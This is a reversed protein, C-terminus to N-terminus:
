LSELTKTHTSNKNVKITRKKKNKAQVKGKNIEQTM